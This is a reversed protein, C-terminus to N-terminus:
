LYISGRLLSRINLNRRHSADLQDAIVAGGVWTAEADHVLERATLATAGTAAWDDVFLVRDSPRVLHRRMTMRKSRNDFDPPTTRRLLAEGVAEPHVDYRIEAFGVGLHVAVLPGVVFGRAEVGVVVTIESGEHLRALAAGIDSLVTADRWWAAQDARGDLGVSRGAARLRAIFDSHSEHDVGPVIAGLGGFELVSRCIPSSLGQGEGRGARRPM